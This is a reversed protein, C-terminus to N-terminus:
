LIYLLVLTSPCFLNLFFIVQAASPTTTNKNESQYASFVNSPKPTPTQNFSRKIDQGYDGIFSVTLPYNLFGM